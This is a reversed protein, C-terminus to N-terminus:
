YLSLLCVGCVLTEIRSCTISVDVLLVISSYFAISVPFLLDETTMEFVLPFQVTKLQYRKAAVPPGSRGVATLILAAKDNDYLPDLSVADAFGLPYRSPDVGTGSTSLSVIGKAILYQTTEV